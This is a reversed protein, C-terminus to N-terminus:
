ACAARGGRGSSRVCTTSWGACTAAQDGADPPLQLRTTSSSWYRPNRSVRPRSSGSTGAGALAPHRGLAETLGTVSHGEFNGVLHAGAGALRNAALASSRSAPSAHASPRRRAGRRLSRRLAGRV